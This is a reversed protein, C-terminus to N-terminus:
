AVSGDRKFSYGSYCTGKIGGQGNTPRTFLTVGDHGPKGWYSIGVCPNLINGAGLTPYRNLGNVYQATFGQVSIAFFDGKEDVAWIGGTVPDHCFMSHEEPIAPQQAPPPVPAAGPWVGDTVSIDFNGPSGHGPWAFQTAVSGPELHQVGTPNAAFWHWGLGALAADLAPKTSTDSYVTHGMGSAVWRAAIEPTADGSEVDCIDAPNHGNTTITLIKAQPFLTKVTQYTPWSGDVYALITTADSPIASVEVADYVIM